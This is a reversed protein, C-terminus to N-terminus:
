FVLVAVTVVNAAPSAAPPLIMEFPTQVVNTDDPINGVSPVSAPSNLLGM